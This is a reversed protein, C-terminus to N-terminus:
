VENWGLEESGFAPGDMCIKKYGHITPTVCTFCAGFGCGMREELSFEAQVGETAAWRAVAKMMVAPGCSLIVVRSKDQGPNEKMWRDLLDIVNGEANDISYAQSVYKGVSEDAFHINRYGFLSVASSTGMRNIDRAAAILPPVGLGGGVLLSTVGEKLAFPRGLPGLIDITEGAKKRSIERTGEGVTAFLFSVQDGEIDCIGLPRPFLRQADGTFFDVFQGGRANSALYPDEIVMRCVGGTLAEMSILPVSRRSPLFGHEHRLHASPAPEAAATRTPSFRPATM